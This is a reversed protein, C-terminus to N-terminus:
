WSSNYYFDGSGEETLLESIMEITREVEDFYYEDYETGGFFFGSQTPLLNRLEENIPDSKFEKVKNLTELLEKLQEESVYHEGCDDDGNQCNMVFWNHLANFKRWYGVEEIIYSIREPKIDKRKKNGKNITIEHLEEPTMHNWNKVYTKKYLYQDLGM